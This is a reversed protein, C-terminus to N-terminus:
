AVSGWRTQMSSPKRVDMYCGKTKDVMQQLPSMKKASVPVAGTNIYNHNRSEFKSPSCRDFRKTSEHQLDAYAIRSPLLYLPAQTGM